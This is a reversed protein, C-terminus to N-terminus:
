AHGGHGNAAWEQRAATVVPPLCQAVISEARSVNDRLSSDPMADLARHLSRLADTLASETRAAPYDPLQQHTPRKM